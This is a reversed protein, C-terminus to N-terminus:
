VTGRNGVGRLDGPQLAPTVSLFVQRNCRELGSPQNRCVGLEGKDSWRVVEHIASGESQEGDPKTLAAKSVWKSEHTNLIRSPFLKRIGPISSLATRIIPGDRLVKSTKFSLSSEGAQIGHDTILSSKCEVGNHIVLRFPEKGQWDIWVIADDNSLFRGWRLEDILLKWPPITMTLREVYGYGKIRKENRTFIEADAKPSLCEWEITGGNSEFLRREFPQVLAKWTGVVGLNAASWKISTETAEPFTVNYISSETRVNGDGVCVLTSAYNL